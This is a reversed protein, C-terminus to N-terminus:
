KKVIYPSFAQRDKQKKSVEKYFRPIVNKSIQYRVHTNNVYRVFQRPM